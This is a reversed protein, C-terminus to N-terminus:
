STSTERITQVITLLETELTGKSFRNVLRGVPTTDFFSMPAYLVANLLGDFLQLLAVNSIFLFPICCLHFAFYRVHRSAKLSVLAVFLMRFVGALAASLNIIAYTSLFSVQSAEDAHRSWYTLWWNSLFGVGEGAAFLALIFFAVMFGGSAHIWSLYAETSIKGTKRLEESVLKSPQTDKSSLSHINDSPASNRAKKPETSLDDETESLDKSVKNDKIVSLIRAFVSDPNNSLSIYSGEEVIRGEEVVYIKNISPHNLYQLANTVLVVSRMRGPISPQTLEDLITRDFLHKAVHADVASLADDVLTIDARHYVARALAVRAKQGGSLTIGREGIETQDGDPLLSLDHRLACCDLARQYLDEDAPDNVHGFLINDRISANMIFPTQSFYALTGKVETKGTLIRLEGLISNILSSKGSGVSGVIAIVEGQQLYFNVRRLCLSSSAQDFVPEQRSIPQEGQLKQIEQEADSLLARLIGVEKDKALADKRGARTTTGAETNKSGYVASVGTINIGNETLNGPGVAHHEESIFFSRLRDISVAAEVISNIATMEIILALV